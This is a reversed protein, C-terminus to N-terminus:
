ANMSRLYNTAIDNMKLLVSNWFLPRILGINKEGDIVLFVEGGPTKMEQVSLGRCIERHPPIDDWTQGLCQSLRARRKAVLNSRLSPDTKLRFIM